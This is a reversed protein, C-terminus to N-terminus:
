PHPERDPNADRETGSDPVAAAISIITLIALLIEVMFFVSRRAAVRRPIVAADENASARRNVTLL